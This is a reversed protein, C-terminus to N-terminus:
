FWFSKKMPYLKIANFFLARATEIAQQAICAEANENWIRKLVKVRENINEPNTGEMYEDMGNEM